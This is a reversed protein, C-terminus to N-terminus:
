QARAIRRHAADLHTQMTRVSLPHDVVDNHNAPVETHFFPDPTMSSWGLMDDTFRGEYFGAIRETGESHLLLTPGAYPRPSYGRLAAGMTQFAYHRRAGEPIKDHLLLRIRHWLRFLVSQGYLRPADSPIARDTLIAHLVQLRSRVGVLHRLRRWFGNPKGSGARLPELWGAPEFADSTPNFGDFMIVLETKEGASQLQQAMEYAVLGGFCHGALLYPGTPQVSQLEDLYHRAITELNSPVARGDLGAWQLGYVPQDDDLSTALSKYRLVNMGGGHVCFLPTKTGRPQIPVVVSWADLDEGRQLKESLTAITPTDALLALPLERGLTESLEVLMEAAVISHGGLSFFDDHIGVPTVELAEEWLEVLLEELDNRPPVIEPREASLPPNDTDSVAKRDVKGSPTLPFSAMETYTSPVMYEPLRDALYTRLSTADLSTNPRPVVFARLFQNGQADDQDPLVVAERVSPHGNLTTEIEGLEVRYGRVKVQRDARGLFDYTGDPSHRALDGTRYIRADTRETFPDPLFREHTQEPRNLYGRALCPGGIYLEGVEGDPVPTMEEDLLYLRVNSIPRGISPLSAWTDVDSPLRYATVVHSETPGYQNELSCDPLRRFFAQLAPVTKLQEGATIVERLPSPYLDKAQAIEAIHQLAVFPLFLRNVQKEELLHLLAVADHRTEESVLILTGGSNWTSFLEQFSVDFSLASFQLTRDGVGLASRRCQWEILNVLPGHPMAVGKPRGTSGSTFLVYALNSSSVSVSPASEPHHDLSSDTRDLVSVTCNAPAELRDSLDTQTLLVTAGAEELMMQLRSAPYSPDLPVYAGGAKLSALISVVFRVSREMFIAVRAEPGVGHEILDHALQNARADLARYSLTEGDFELAPADPTRRAQEAFLDHIGRGTM